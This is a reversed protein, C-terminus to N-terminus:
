SVKKPTSKKRKKFLAIAGCIAIVAQIALKVLEMISDNSPLLETAQTGALATLTILLQKM